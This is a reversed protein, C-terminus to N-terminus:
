EPSSLTVPVGEFPEALPYGMWINDPKITELNVNYQGICLFILYTSVWLFSFVM